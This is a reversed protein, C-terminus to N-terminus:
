FYTRIDYPTAVTLLISLIIPRKQLIADRKYTEKAFSVQLKIWGVLWLWGMGYVCVCIIYTYKAYVHVYSGFRSSFFSTVRALSYGSFHFSGEYICVHECIKYKQKRMCPFIHASDLSSLLSRALVYGSFHFSYTVASISLARMYICVCVYKHTYKRMFIFIHAWDLSFLLSERSYTVASISLARM